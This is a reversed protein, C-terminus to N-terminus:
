ESAEALRRRATDTVTMFSDSAATEPEVAVWAQRTKATGEDRALGISELHRLAARARKEPLATGTVIEAATSRPKEQIVAHVKAADADLAAQHREAQVEAVTDLRLRRDTGLTLRAPAISVGSRGFASFVRPTEADPLGELEIRCLVDPFGELSSHGRAGRESDKGLHHVILLGAAGCETALSRLGTLVEVVADDNESISLAGLLSYLCDFVIVSGPKIQKAWRQRVQPVRVDFTREVGRISRLNIRGLNRVGAASYEAHLQEASMESDILAVEAALDLSSPYRGFLARDDVLSGVVDIVTTTKGAKRAAFLGLVGGHPWLEDVLWPVPSAVFTALDIRDPVELGEAAREAVILRAQARVEQADAEALSRARLALARVADPTLRGRASLEAATAGCEIAQKGTFTLVPLTNKAPIMNHREIAAAMKREWGSRAPDLDAAAFHIGDWKALVAADDRRREVEAARESAAREVRAQREQWARAKNPEGREAYWQDVEAWTAPIVDHEAMVLGHDPVGFERVREVKLGPPPNSPDIGLREAAMLDPMWPCLDEATSETGFTQHDNKEEGGGAQERGPATKSESM